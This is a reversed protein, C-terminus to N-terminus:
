LFIALVRAVKVVIARDGETIALSISLITLLLSVQSLKHFSHNVPPQGPEKLGVIDKSCAPKLGRILSGFVKKWCMLSARVRNSPLVGECVPLICEVWM